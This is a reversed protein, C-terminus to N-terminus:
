TENINRDPQVHMTLFRTKYKKFRKVSSGIASSPLCEGSVLDLLSFNCYIISLVSGHILFAKEAEVLAHLNKVSELAQDNDFFYSPVVLNYYNEKFPVSDGSLIITEQEKLRVVLIQHGPTHGPMPAIVLQGDEFIDLEGDVEQYDLPPGM